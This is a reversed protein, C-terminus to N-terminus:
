LCTAITKCQAYPLRIEIYYYVKRLHNFYHMDKRICCTLKHVHMTNYAMGKDAMGLKCKRRVDSEIGEDGFVSDESSYRVLENDIDSSGVIILYIGGLELEGYVHRLNHAM